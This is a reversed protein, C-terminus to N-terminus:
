DAKTRDTPLQPIRIEGVQAQVRVDVLWNDAPNGYAEFNFLESFGRPDTKVYGWNLYGAFGPCTAGTYCFTTTSNDATHEIATVRNLADYEYDFGEYTPPTASPLSRFSVRGAADYRTEILGETVNSRIDEAKRSIERGLADFEETLRYNSALGSGGRTTSKTRGSNSWDIEVASYLPSTIKSLRRLEDYEFRVKNTNRDTESQITGNDNVVQTLPNGEADNETRPIGRKYNLYQKSITTGNRDWNVEELLGNSNSLFNRRALGHSQETKLRGTNSDFTRVVGPALMVGLVM